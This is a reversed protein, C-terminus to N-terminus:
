ARLVYTGTHHAVLPVTATRCEATGYASRGGLKLVRARCVVDERVAASLFSTKLDATVWQEGIGRLTLIAPWIAVDAAAMLAPGNVIGGPRDPAERYPLELECEGPAASIARFRYPEVFACQRLLANLEALTARQAQLPM